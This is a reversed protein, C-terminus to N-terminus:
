NREQKIPLEKPKAYMGGATPSSARKAAHVSRARQIMDDTLKRRARNISLQQQILQYEYDRFNRSYANYDTIMADEFCHQIACNYHSPNKCNPGYQCPLTDYSPQPTTQNYLLFHPREVYVPKNVLPKCRDAPNAHLHYCKAGKECARRHNSDYCCRVFPLHAPYVPPRVGVVKVLGLAALEETTITASLPLASEAPPTATSVAEATTPIEVMGSKTSPQQAIHSLPAAGVKPNGLSVRLPSPTRHHSMRWQPPSESLPDSEESGVGVILSVPPSSDAGSSSNFISGIHLGTKDSTTDIEAQHSLPPTPPCSQHALPPTGGEPCCPSVRFKRVSADELALKGKELQGVCGDEVVKRTTINPM